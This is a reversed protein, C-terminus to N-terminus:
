PLWNWIKLRLWDIAQHTWIWALLRDDVEIKGVGEVGPRLTETNDVHAEVRFYNRGETTTSVPTIRRVEFPLHDAPSGSLALKGRQGIAVDAIDREDVQLIVRYADLPALQFLVQGRQIPAGLSQSLDGTVIVGDFPATIKTRAIQEDLLAVQATAQAMQASYIQSQAANGNGLAEHYQRRSQDEQSKWRNRELQWERDDLTALEQGKQVIDGARLPATRIYGDFATAVAQQASPEVVTNATIRYTGQARSLFVTLAILAVVLLKAAIHSPGIVAKLMGMASDWIKRALWRDDRRYTELIPGVLGGLSECIAITEDDFPNDAARELTIAGVTGQRGPLPVTCISANGSERSLRAHARTVVARHGSSEPFVVPSGQDASEDMAGDIARVINTDKGFQGTHSMAALRISGRRQMGISVRDCDFRSALATALAVAAGHFSKPSVVTALLTIVAQMREFPAVDPANSQGRQGLVEMWASGWQLQRMAEQLAEEPRSDIDLAVVGYIRGAVQVPYAIDYSTRPGGGNETQRKLAMGRRDKLAREAAEALHKFDGTGTPWSAAFVFSSDKDPSALLVVGGAVGPIMRCQLSLWATCFEKESAAKGFQRWLTDLNVTSAADSTVTGGSAYNKENM